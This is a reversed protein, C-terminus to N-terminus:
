KITLIQILTGLPNKLLTGLTLSFIKWNRFYKPNYKKESVISTQNTQISM